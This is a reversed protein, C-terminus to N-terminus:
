RQIKVREALAEYVSSPVSLSGFGTGLELGPKNEGHFDSGGSPLLALSDAIECADSVASPTYTSYLTEMAILGAEKMEGALRRATEKDFSFLPHALVPIAGIKRIFKVVDLTDLRRPPEYFDGHPRLLTAFAEERSSVAGSEVLMAAVHARNFQGKSRRKLEDYDVAYGAQRLAEVLKKNSEEKLRKADEVLATVEMFHEEGVFLAVTHVEKGQWETSFEVGCVARVGHKKGAAIFEPLGLVTNHDTLAVAYLGKKKALLIIEEPTLTGDSFTSHTHLDCIM